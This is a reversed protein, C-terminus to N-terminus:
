RVSIARKAGFFRLLSIKQGALQLRVGTEPRCPIRMVRSTPQWGAYREQAATAAM